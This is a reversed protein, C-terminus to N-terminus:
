KKRKPVGKKLIIEFVGKPLSYPSAKSGGHSSLKRNGTLLAQLEEVLHGQLVLECRGKKLAARGATLSHEDEVTASCAYRKSVDNAFDNPNITYEELGRVRTIFKKRNQRCEVEITVMPPKGRKLSLIVSGPMSVVAHACDMKEIWKVNMEKRTISEPYENQQVSASTQKKSKRFLVDCLNGDLIVSEPDYEDILNNEHVYQNLIDRCEPLTLFGSGRREESKANVAKVTDEDLRLISAVNHPIAYLNVIAMKNKEKMANDGGVEEKRRRKADRLDIHTRDIGTLFAVPDQEDKSPGITIISKGCETRVTNQSQELLFSSIKKYRTQKIDLFTGEKRSPLLYQTYFTSVAMPLDKKSVVLLATHFAYLLSEEQDHRDSTEESTAADKKNTEDDIDPDIKLKGIMDNTAVESTTNVQDEDGKQEDGAEQICDHDQKNKEGEKSNDNSNSNNGDDNGDLDL